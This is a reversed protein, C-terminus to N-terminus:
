GAFLEDASREGTRRTARSNLRGNGFAGKRVFENRWEALDILSGEYGDILVVGTGTLEEGLTKYHNTFFAVLAEILPQLDPSLVTYQRFNNAFGRLFRSDPSRVSWIGRELEPNLVLHKKRYGIKCGNRDLAINLAPMRRRLGLALEASLRHRLNDLEYELDSVQQRADTLRRVVDTAASLSSLDSQEELVVDLREAMSLRRPSCGGNSNAAM